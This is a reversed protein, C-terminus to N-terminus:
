HGAKKNTRRHHITEIYKDIRRIAKPNSANYLGSKLTDYHALAEEATRYATGLSITRKGHYPSVYDCAVFYSEVTYCVIETTYYYKDTIHDIHESREVVEVTYGLKKDNKYGM